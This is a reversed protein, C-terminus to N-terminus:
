DTARLHGDSCPSVTSTEGPTFVPVFDDFGRVAFYRNRIHCGSFLPLEISFFSPVITIWKGCLRAFLNEPSLRIFPYLLSESYPQKM